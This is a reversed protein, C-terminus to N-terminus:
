KHKNDKWLLLFIIISIIILLNYYIYYYIIIIYIIIIISLLSTFGAIIKASLFRYFHGALSIIRYLRPYITDLIPHKLTSQKIHSQICFWDAQFASSLIHRYIYIYISVILRFNTFVIQNRNSKILNRQTYTLKIFVQRTLNSINWSHRGYSLRLENRIPHEHM